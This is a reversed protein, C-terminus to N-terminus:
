KSRPFSKELIKVSAADERVVPLTKQAFSWLSWNSPGRPMQTEAEFREADRVSNKSIFAVYDRNLDEGTLERLRATGPCDKLESKPPLPVSLTRAMSELKRHIKEQDYSETFALNQVAKDSTKAAVFKSIQAVCYSSHLTELAFKADDGRWALPNYESGMAAPYIKPGSPGEQAHLSLGTLALIGFLFTSRFPM